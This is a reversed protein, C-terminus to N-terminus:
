HPAYIACDTYKIYHIMVSDGQHKVTDPSAYGWSMLADISEQRYNSLRVTGKDFVGQNWAPVNSGVSDWQHCEYTHTDDGKKACAALFLIALLAYKM